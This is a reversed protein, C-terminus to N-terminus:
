EAAQLRPARQGASAVRRFTVTEYSAGDGDRRTPASPADSSWEDEPVAPFTCRGSPEAHILSMEIRHAWPMAQAYVEGGGAVVIEDAGSQAAAVAAVGFAGMLSHAVYHRLRKAPFTWGADRTVVIVDRFPLPRPLSDFTRRGMIVPKNITLRKFRDLDSPVSWPLSRGDGIVGNRAVAAVLVIPLSTM